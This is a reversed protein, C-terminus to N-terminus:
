RGAAAVAAALGPRPSSLVPIGTTTRGAAGAMSGQALVIVDADRVADASAAVLDLFGDNDGATFREWAGDVLVTRVDAGPLGAGAAEETLLARTPELTSALAALVTVRGARVAAAAMPRDVRLVPVGVAVGAAEAVAGITSCTCLVADAGEAVLDAVVAEVEDAVAEPGLAAATTLLEERVVHRLATGPHDADRLADFVPVHVPSTHLLALTM